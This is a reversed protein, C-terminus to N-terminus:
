YTGKDCRVATRYFYLLGAQLVGGIIIYLILESDWKLDLAHQFRTGWGEQYERMSRSVLYWVGASAFQVIEGLILLVIDPTRPRICMFAGLMLLLSAVVCIAQGPWSTGYYKMIPIIFFAKMLLILGGIRIRESM